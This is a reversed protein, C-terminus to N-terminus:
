LDDRNRRLRHAFRDCLWPPLHDLILRPFNIQRAASWTANQWDPDWKRGKKYGPMHLSIRDHMGERFQELLEERTVPWWGRLSEKFTSGPPAEQVRRWMKAYDRVDVQRGRVVIVVQTKSAFVGTVPANM